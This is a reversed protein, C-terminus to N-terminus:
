KLATYHTTEVIQYASDYCQKYESNPAIVDFIVNVITPIFFVIVAALIKYFILPGYKEFGEGKIVERMLDVMVSVILMIPVAIKIITIVLKILKMVKQVDPVDCISLIM